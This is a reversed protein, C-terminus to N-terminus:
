LAEDGSRIYWSFDRGRPIGGGGGGGGGGSRETGGSAPAEAVEAPAEAAGADATGADLMAVVPAAPPLGQDIADKLHLAGPHRPHSRLVADISGRAQAVNGDALLARAYLLRTRIMAPDQEIAAAAEDCAASVSGGAQEMALLAEV